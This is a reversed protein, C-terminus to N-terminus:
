QSLTGRMFPTTTPGPSGGTPEETVLVLTAGRSSPPLTLQDVLAHGDPDPNFVSVSFPKGDQLLWVQYSRGAPAPPMRFAHVVGRRQKENWFFQIGPGRASDSTLVTAVRLNQDSELISNLTHERRLLSQRLSVSYAALGIMVMLSAALSGTLWAPARLTPAASSAAQKQDAVRALLRERASVPASVARTAAIAAAVEQYARLEKKLEESAPSPEAIAADVAIMEDRSLAGLAYAQLMELLEEQTFRRM